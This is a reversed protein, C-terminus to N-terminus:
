DSAFREIEESKRSDLDIKPSALCVKSKVRELYGSKFTLVESNVLTALLQVAFKSKLKTVM